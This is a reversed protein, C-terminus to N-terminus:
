RYAHLQGNESVVYLTRNAVVPNSGAGGPLPAAGVRAGTQPDFARILGDNSAVLLRGGALVPGYHAFVARRRRLRERTFYPLQVAWVRAGTAADLRVLEGTDSVVFVSGGIVVPPSMAGEPATWLREGSAADLAVTRGGPNGAVVLDGAIVPDGTIDDISAYTRGAREGTIPASWVRTGGARLTALLHGSNFPFVALRDGVAPASGGDVGIPDPVGSIQWRIRGSEVDLAWARSDRSVAYVTDGVVTPAGMAAADLDQRWLEAGNVASLAILEGFGTTVFVRAGVAALGGGSADDSRDAPPTLDRSWLPAGATSVATVRARSDMAFIRGGQVVPDAGIRHKRGAPQGIDVSWIRALPLDLAAHPPRHEPNDAKHSWDPNVTTAPISVPGAQVAAPPAKREPRLDLREGPLIPERECAGVLMAVALGALVAAPRM